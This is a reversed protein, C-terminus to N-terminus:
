ITHGDENVTVLIKTQQYGSLRVILDATIASGILVRRPTNISVLEADKFKTPSGAGITYVPLNQTRLEHLQTTLDTPANTAGDSVVVIASLPFGGSSKTIDQLANAIDTTTGNAQIENLDSLKTASSSFGYLNIRFKNGVSKVLNGNPDLLQKVADIRSSGNEDKLQMSQSDDVLVAVYTSKPIVSPVVIVPRMLLLALLVLVGLRLAALGVASAGKSKRFARVYVFYIVAAAVILFFILQLSSHLSQFTLKGKAFVVWDHKFLLQLIRGM